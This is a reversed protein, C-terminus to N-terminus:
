SVVANKGFLFSSTATKAFRCARRVTIKGDSQNPNIKNFFRMLPMAACNKSTNICLKLLPM